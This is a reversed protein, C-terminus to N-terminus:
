GKVTELEYDLIGLDRATPNRLGAIRISLERMMEPDQMWRYRRVGWIDHWFGSSTHHLGQAHSTEMVATNTERRSTEYLRLTEDSVGDRDFCRKIVAALVEADLIAMNMGQATTPHITHAAEGILCVNNRVYASAHKWNVKYSHSLKDMATSTDTHELIPGRVLLRHRLQAENLRRWEPLAGAPIQVALRMDAGGDLPILVMLGGQGVYRIGRRDLEPLDPRPVMLMLYEHDYRHLEVDEIGVAQRVKSQPGDAAVVIRGVAEFTEGDGDGTTGVAGVVRNGDEVLLGTVTHGRRPQIVDSKSEMARYLAQHIKVHRLIVSNQFKFPIDVFSWTGLHGIRPNVFEWEKIPYAGLEEMHRLVDWREFFGLTLPQLADGRNIEPWSDGRELVISSIGYEALAHAMSAGAVAGGVVVVDAEYRHRSKGEHVAARGLPVRTVDM